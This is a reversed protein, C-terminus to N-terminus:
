AKFQFAPEVSMAVAFGGLIASNQLHSERAAKDLDTDPAPPTQAVAVATAAVTAIAALQRRTLKDM